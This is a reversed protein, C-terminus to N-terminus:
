RTGQCYTKKKKFPLSICTVELHSEVMMRSRLKNMVRQRCLTSCLGKDYFSLLMLVFTFPYSCQPNNCSHTFLLTFYPERKKLTCTLVLSSTLSSYCCTTTMSLLEIQRVTIWSPCRGGGGLRRLMDNKKM